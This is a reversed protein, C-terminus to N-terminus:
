SLLEDELKKLDYLLLMNPTYRILKKEKLIKVERSVTERTLGCQAALEKESIKLQTCDKKQIGFRKAQILLETILRTYASGSMLNTMKVLLGDTGKYVRCLLDYLVDPNDKLFKIADEKKARYVKIDELAEFFYQNKTNNVAWSMPFFAEPKFTNVVLEEGNKSIAYEKVKGSKLFFIGSPDDDARILIEGKKYEQYKHQTFFERIKTLITTDM